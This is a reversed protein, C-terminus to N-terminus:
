QSLTKEIRSLEAKAKADGRDAREQLNASMAQKARELAKFQEATIGPMEQATQAAIVGEAYDNTRVASLVAKVYANAEAPPAQARAPNEAPPSPPPEPVAAPFAKELKSAEANVDPKGGCGSMALVLTLAAISFQSTNFVMKGM